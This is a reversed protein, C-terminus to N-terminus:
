FSELAAAVTDPIHGHFELERAEAALNWDAMGYHPRIPFDRPYIATIRCRGLSLWDLLGSRVGVVHGGYEALALAEGLDCTLGETGPVPDPHGPDLNTVCAYGLRNLEGALKEFLEGPLSGLSNAYPALIVTRGPPLRHRRVLPEVDPRIPAPLQRPADPFLGFVGSRFIDPMKLGPARKLLYHRMFGSEHSLTIRGAWRHFLYFGPDFRMANSIRIAAGESLLIRDDYCDRFADYLVAMRRKGIVTIHRISKARRFAPLYMCSLMADGLGFSIVVYHTRRNRILYYLCMFFGPIAALMCMLDKRLTSEMAMAM